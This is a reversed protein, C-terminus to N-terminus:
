GQTQCRSLRHSSLCGLSLTKRKGEISYDLRWWKAGNPKILLYLGGDNLRKDKDGQKANRVSIDLLSGKAM